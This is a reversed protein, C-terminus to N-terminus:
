HAQLLVEVQGRLDSRGACVRDLFAPWQDPAHKEVAELFLAKVPNPDTNMPDVKGGKEVSVHSFPASFTESFFGANLGLGARRGAPHLYDERVLATEQAKKSAVQSNSSNPSAVAM